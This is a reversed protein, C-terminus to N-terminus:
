RKHSLRDLSPTYFRYQGSGSQKAEYMALDAHNFLESGIMSHSPYLAIGVSANIKIPYNNYFYPSSLQYIIRQAVSSIEDLTLPDSLIICFEDGGVRAVTDTRKVGQKLRLSVQQLLWDGAKHTHTDNIEKFGDLDIYLLSISFGDQIGSRLRDELRSFFLKRNALGTLEDYFAMFALEFEPHQNEKSGNFLGIDDEKKLTNKLHAQKIQEVRHKLLPSNLAGSFFDSAGSQLAQELFPLSASHSVAIIPIQPLLTSIIRIKEFSTDEFGDVDFLLVPFSELHRYHELLSEVSSTWSYSSYLEQISLIDQANPSFWIVTTSDSVLMIIIGRFVRIKIRNM